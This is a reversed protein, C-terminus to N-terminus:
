RGVGDPATVRLWAVAVGLETDHTSDPNLENWPVAAPTRIMFRTYPRSSRYGAPVLGSVLVGHAHPTHRLDIPVRNVELVLAERIAPTMAAAVLVEVRTGGTLTVPVDIWADRGPGTWRLTGFDHVQPERWAGGEFAPDDAPVTLSGSIESAAAARVRERDALRM